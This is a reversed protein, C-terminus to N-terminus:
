PEVTFGPDSSGSTGIVQAGVSVRGAAAPVAEVIRQPMLVHDLKSGPVDYLVDGAVSSVAVLYSPKQVGPLFSFVGMLLYNKVRDGVGVNAGKPDFTVRAEGWQLGVADGWQPRFVVGYGDFTLTGVNAAARPNGELRQVNLVVESM